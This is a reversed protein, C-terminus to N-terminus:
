NGVRKCEAGTSGGASQRLRANRGVCTAVADDPVTQALVFAFLQFGQEVLYCCDDRGTWEDKIPGTARKANAGTRSRGGQGGSPAARRGTVLARMWADNVRPLARKVAIVM